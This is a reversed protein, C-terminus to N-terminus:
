RLNNSFTNYDYKQLYPSKKRIINKIQSYYPLDYKCASDHYCYAISFGLTIGILIALIIFITVPIGMLSFFSYWVPISWIISFSLGFVLTNLSLSAFHPPPISIGVRWLLQYILPAYCCRWINTDALIALAIHIESPCSALANTQNKKM